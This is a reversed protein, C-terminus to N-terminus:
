TLSKRYTKHKLGVRAAGPWQSWRCTTRGQRGARKGAGCRDPPPSSASTVCDVKLLGFRRKKRRRRRRRKEKKKKKDKKAKRQTAFVSQASFLEPAGSQFRWRNAAGGREGWREGERERVGERGRGGWRMSLETISLRM